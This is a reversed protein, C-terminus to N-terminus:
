LVAMIKGPILMEFQYHIPVNRFPAQKLKFDKDYEPHVPPVKM